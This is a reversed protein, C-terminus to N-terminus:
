ARGCDSARLSLSVDARCQFTASGDPIRECSRLNPTVDKICIAQPCSSAPPRGAAAAGRGVGGWRLRRGGGWAEGCGEGPGREGLASVPSRLGSRLELFDGARGKRGAGVSPESRQAYPSGRLGSLLGAARGVSYSGPGAVQKYWALGPSALLLCWALTAAALTVPRAM